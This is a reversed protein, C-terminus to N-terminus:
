QVSRYFTTGDAATVHPSTAGPVPQFPGSISGASELTGTYTITVADGAGSIALTPVAGATVLKVVDSTVYNGPLGAVVRFTAAFDAAQIAIFGHSPGTANAIDVFGAGDNRQWQYTFPVPTGQRSAEADAEFVVESPPEITSLTLSRIVWGPLSARSCDDWAGLFQVAIRDGQGFTGLVATTTIFEGAAHGPSDGNFAYQGNIVGNGQITRGTAYGNATFNERPVVEFAGGNVSVLVQGGDWFDGEFSYRHEFVLLVAQTAPVVYEPSSLRSHYPGDCGDSSGEATWTGSGPDYLFPGPPEPTTNTVTFGADDAMFSVNTFSAPVSPPRVLADVPQLRFSVESNPDVYSAFFQGSLPLLATAATTDTSKRWALRLYDGGGGEKLLVLLAYRRNAQLSVPTATTAPDGADPEAFAGCCDPENAIPLDVDPNPPTEGTSLYLRSADDSSLFFYYDGSEAPTLFGTIRALYSEHSDDAFVTRTDFRGILNGLTTPTGAVVRPDALATTIAEDSANPLNDYHEFRLVGQALAWAHFPLSSNPAVMAAPLMQDKVGSVTVAYTQGPTQPATTLEVIHDGDLGPPAVLAAGLVALGPIQYNAPDRATAPDLPKSFWIRVTDFGSGGAAHELVPPVGDAALVSVTVPASTVAGFPNSVIVDYLGALAETVAPIELVMGTQGPLDAGERRWQYALPVSGRATVSLSLTYGAYVPRSPVAPGTVITPAVESAFYLDQVAEPSLATPLIAVEDISGLFPDGTVNFVGGGGINFYYGSSGYSEVAGSLRGIEQGNAYLVTNTPSAVIAFQGWADDAFPYPAKINGGRAAVYLEINAGTDADGFELLDNQGFYGGRGSHIQGRRVWGVVSFETLDNLTHLTAVHGAAGNFVSATNQPDFGSFEPPRPGTGGPALGPVYSGDAASGATGENRAVPLAAPPVYTPEGLPYYALPNAALVLNRYPTVPAASTGAAFHGAVTAASLASPYLAVADATGNWYFSADARAGIALGGSAGPVYGSPIGEAAVQGNVYLMAKTGDYVAVLHYWSGAVPPGGGTIDLSTAAGNNNYLRLNWGAASQYLLWGTRPSAFQGSSLACTLTTSGPEFEVAPSLWAEVSFPAAPNLSADYPVLTFTGATGDFYSAGADSGSLVGPVPHSSVGLYYGNAPTGLSGLNVAIDADPPPAMEDLRWYAVPNLSSLASPYDAAAPLGGAGTLVAM